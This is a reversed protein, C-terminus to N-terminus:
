EVTEVEIEVGGVKKAIFNYLWASIYGFVMGMLGYFLPLLIPAGMGLFIPTQSHTLLTLIFFFVGGIFGMLAYMAGFVKGLSKPDIKKIRKM